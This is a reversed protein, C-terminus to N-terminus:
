VRGGDVHWVVCLGDRVIKLPQNCDPCNAKSIDM